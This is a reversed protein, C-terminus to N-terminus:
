TCQTPHNKQYILKSIYSVYHYCSRKREKKKEKKPPPPSPTAPSKCSFAEVRCVRLLSGQEHDSPKITCHYLLLSVLHQDSYPSFGQVELFALILLNVQVTVACSKM